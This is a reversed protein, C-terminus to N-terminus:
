RPKFYVKNGYRLDIYSVSLESGARPIAEDRLLVQMSQLAKAYAGEKLLLQVGNSLVVSMERAEGFVVRRPELSLRELGKLFAFLDALRETEFVARGIPSTTASKELRYYQGDNEAGVEEFVFGTRDMFFCVREAVCWLAEPERERVSVQLEAFNKLSLSVRSLSPFRLLLSRRIAARPYFLIHARPIVGWYSGSLQEVLLARLSEHPIHTVGTFEIRQIRFAPRSLAYLAGGALCLIALLFLLLKKARRKREKRAARSSRLTRRAM